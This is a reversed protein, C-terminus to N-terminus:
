NSNYDQNKARLEGNIFGKVWDYEQQTEFSVLDMCRKRSILTNIDKIIKITINRCLIWYPGPFCIIKFKCIKILDYFDIM